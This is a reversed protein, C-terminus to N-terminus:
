NSVISVNIVAGALDARVFHTKLTINNISSRKEYSLGAAKTIGNGRHALDSWIAIIKGINVADSEIELQSVESPFYPFNTFTPDFGPLMAIMDNWINYFQGANTLTFSFTKTM